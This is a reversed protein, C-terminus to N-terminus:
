AGDSLPVRHVGPGAASTLHVGGLRNRYLVYSGAVLLLGILPMAWASPPDGVAIHSYLAGILDFVLGAYAWEKLRVFRPVLVAVVGLIKATGIFPLLYAPYGLHGFLAVAQPVQLIDPVSAMLMLGAMLATVSWYLSKTTM